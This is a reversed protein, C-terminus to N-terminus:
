QQPVPANPQLAQMFGPAMLANAPNGLRNQALHALYNTVPNQRPMMVRQMLAQGPASYLGHAVAGAGLVPLVHGTAAGGGLVSADMLLRGATGSDPVKSPLVGQAREALDQMEARGRTFAMKNRTADTARVANRLQAPTFVGDQAGLMGAAKNVRVLQRFSNTANQLARNAEPTNNRALMAKVHSQLDKVAQGLQRKGLEDSRMLKAAQAGLDSQIEHVVKGSAKGNQGFKRLVSEQIYNGLEDGEKAPLSKGYKNWLKGIDNALGQDVKGSMKALTKDYAQSVADQAMGLAQRGTAGRPLSVGLPAIVRNIAANDFSELARQQAKRIAGGVIPVSTLMDEARKAAGGLMMGPTLKVGEKALARAEPTALGRVVKGALAGAGPLVTGIGGGVLTNAIHEGTSTYPQAYGQAAGTAGGVAMKTGVAAAAGLGAAPSLLALPVAQGAYGLVNGVKGSKTAMLAEDAQRANEVDGTGVKGFLQGIGRGTDYIAKGAGAALKSGVSMGAVNKANEEQFRKAQYEPDQMPAIDSRIKAALESPSLRTKGPAMWADPVERGSAKLKAAIQAKTTGEPIGQLVTGDPLTVNMTAM